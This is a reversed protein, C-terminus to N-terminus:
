EIIVEFQKEFETRISAIEEKSLPAQGGYAYELGLAEYKAGGLRHFPILYVRKIGIGCLHSIISSIDESSTNFDPILPIRIDVRAGHSILRRINDSVLDLDGGIEKYKEQRATKFDFLYGDVFPNLIEFKEYPLCGATDILVSIGRDQLLSAIKAIRDAQLIAEGGSFTVGGGSEKYFDEDELLEDILEDTDILRGLTEVKGTTKYRLTVPMATLNEPNHCWPCRLNCGKCFVTTRIGDGDGVSFHQIKSVNLM